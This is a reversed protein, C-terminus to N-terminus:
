LGQAGHGLALKWAKLQKGIQKDSSPGSFSPEMSSPDPMNQGWQLGVSRSEQSNKSQTFSTDDGVATGAEQDGGQLRHQSELIFWSPQM